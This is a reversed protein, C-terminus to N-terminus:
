IFSIMEAAFSRVGKREERSLIWSPHEWALKRGAKKQKESYEFIGRDQRVLESYHMASTYADYLLKQAEFSGGTYGAMWEAFAIMNANRLAFAMISHVEGHAECILGTIVTKRILFPLAADNIVARQAFHCMELRNDADKLAMARRIFGDAMM